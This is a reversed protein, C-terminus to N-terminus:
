ADWRSYAPPPPAAVHRGTEPDRGEWLGREIRAETEKPSLPPLRTNQTSSPPLRATQSSAALSSGPRRSASKSNPEFPNHDRERERERERDVNYGERHRQREDIEREREVGYRDRVREVGYRDSERERERVREREDDDKPPVPPRSMRRSTSTSAGANFPDVSRSLPSRLAENSLPSRLPENSLPSRLGESGSGYGSSLPTRSGESSIPTRLGESGSGSGPSRADLLPSGVSSSAFPSVPSYGTKFPDSVVGTEIKPIPLFHRRPAGGGRETHTHTQTQTEEHNPKLGSGRGGTRAMEDGRGGTRAGASGSGRASWGSDRWGGSEGFSRLSGNVSGPLVDIEGVGVPTFPTRSDAFHWAGDPRRLAIRMDSGPTHDTSISKQKKSTPPTSLSLNSADSRTLQFNFNFSVHQVNLNITQNNIRFFGTLCDSFGMWGSSSAPLALCTSLLLDHSFCRFIMM